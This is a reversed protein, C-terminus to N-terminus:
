IGKEKFLYTSLTFTANSVGQEQEGIQLKSIKMFRSGAELGNIFSALQHYTGYVSFDYPITILTADSSESKKKIFGVKVGADAATEQFNGYLRPIETRTPLRKEFRGVLDEVETLELQLKEERDALRNAEDLEQKKAQISANLEDAQRDLTGQVAM